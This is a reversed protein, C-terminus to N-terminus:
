RGLVLVLVIAAGALLLVTSVTGGGSGGTVAKVLSQGLTTGSPNTATIQFGADLGGPIGVNSNFGIGGGEFGSLDYGPGGISVSPPVIAPSSM